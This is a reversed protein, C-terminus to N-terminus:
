ILSDLFDAFGCFVEDAFLTNICLCLLNQLSSKGLGIRKKFFSESVEPKTKKNELQIQRIKKRIAIQQLQYEAILRHLEEFKGNYQIFIQELIEKQKILEDLEDQKSKAPKNHLLKEILEFFTKHSSRSIFTKIKM